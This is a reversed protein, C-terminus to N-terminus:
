IIEEQETTEFPEAYSDDIAEAEVQEVGPENERLLESIKAINEAAVEPRAPRHPEPKPAEIVASIPAPLPGGRMVFEVALEYAERLMREAKIQDARAFMYSDVYSWVQRLFPSRADKNTRLEFQVAAFSPIGLCLKRFEPLTPPWSDSSSIASSIGNAIQRPTISALGKAWTHGAGKEADEGYASTWKHGYIETMRLWLKRM